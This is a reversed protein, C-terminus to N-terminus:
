VTDSTPDLTVADEKMAEVSEFLVLYLLGNCEKTEGTTASCQPLDELVWVEQRPEPGIQTDEKVPKRNIPNRIGKQHTIVRKSILLESELTIAASCGGKPVGSTNIYM